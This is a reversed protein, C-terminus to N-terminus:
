KLSFEVRNGAKQEDAKTEHTSVVFIRESPIGGNEILWNRAANARNEALVELDNDHIVTHELMLQEMEADPLSKTLGIINKPKEFDEKKYAMELYKSYEEPDLTIDTLTGSTIGKKVDGALKQAKVKNQLMALKLGEHDAVPDVRGSIELELSPRDNLIESLTQLRQLSEDEINAFGPTFTIESLEEGGEFAAGLLTFPSTIAKTILNVFAQFIIDGLNFEPDNISGKLPLHIDIEGRRNKLLTIALDLPLSVANERDIKEGLTFQDLFIKNDASLAGNKIQYNVDASLKGKEIAYGIFKGSYPSFPPLDIDKVQAVIDMQLEASFADISGSIKLPSTKGVMGQIDIKGFKETQLPGIQGSLSSLKARYNPKIFRDNFDISGQQLSINDIHVSAPKQLEAPQTDAPSANAVTVPPDLPVDQRVIHKLNLSGDPLLTIRAFFDSLKIAKINMQLPNNVFKLDNIDLKKWRLLDRTTIPDFVNFNALNGHGGLQIKLPDGQAKITGNFSIDGSTLLATLRDGGWGQLSVLDVNDLNLTLDTVLPAWGLSGDVKIQGRQNVQAQLTLNSPTAGSLDVNDVTLSLSEIVMPTLKELTLDEYRLAAENLKIRKIQTTWQAKNNNSSAEEGSPASLVASDSPNTKSEAVKIRDAGSYAPKRGPIPINRQPKVEAAQVQGQTQTQPQVHADTPEFMRTLNIKGDSERRLITNLRDLAIEDLAIERSKINVLIRDISLQALSLATESEGERTLEVQDMKLKIQSPNNRMLDVQTLAINLEKVNTRYPAAVTTDKIALQQLITNGTLMIIPAQDPEQTFTLLLDSDLFGSLLRIGQPLPAYRDFESLDIKNFKLALTAEQPVTFPRLKGELAFPSGNIKASFHPEIWHELASDFNAIVPIGLNIETIQHDTQMHRDIFEFHGEQITINSISFQAGDDDKEDSPQSFKELLDSINLQDKTERILRFKPHTLAIATIVPARQKLSKISLDIYLRNFSFLSEGPEDSDAKVGVQFGHVILELTHPKIEISAVTVPRQLFESLRIELQSKAYGPLWFYSIAALLIILVAIVGLSIGLRKYGIFRQPTTTTM